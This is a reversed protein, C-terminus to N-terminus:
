PTSTARVRSLAYDVLSRVGGLRKGGPGPLAELAARAAAGRDALEARLSSRPNTLTSGVAAIWERELRLARRLRTAEPGGYGRVEITLSRAMLEAERARALARSPGRFHVRVLQARMRQDAAVLQGSVFGADARSLQGSPANMALMAAAAAPPALLAAVALRRRVAKTRLRTARRSAPERAEATALEEASRALAALLKARQEASLPRPPPPRDLLRDHDDRAERRARGRRRTRGRSPPAAGAVDDLGAFTAPRDDRDEPTAREPALPPAEPEDITQVLAALEDQDLAGTTAAAAGNSDNHGTRGNAARKAATAGHGNGNSARRRAQAKAAATLPAPVGDGPEDAAAPVEAKVDSAGM